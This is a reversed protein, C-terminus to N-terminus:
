FFRRAAAAAAPRAGRPPLFFHRCLAGKGVKQPSLMRLMAQM